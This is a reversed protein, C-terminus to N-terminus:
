DPQVKGSFAARASNIHTRANQLAAIREPTSAVQISKLAGEPDKELKQSFSPDTVAHHLVKQFDDLDKM